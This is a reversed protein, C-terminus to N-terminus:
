HLRRLLAERLPNQAEQGESGELAVRGGSGGRVAGDPWLEAPAEPPPEREGGFDPAESWVVVVDVDNQRHKEAEAAAAEKESGNNQKKKKKM